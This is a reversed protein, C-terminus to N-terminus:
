LTVSRLWHDAWEALLEAAEAAVLDDDLAQQETLRQSELLALLFRQRDLEVTLQLRGLRERRRQERKRATAAARRHRVDPFLARRARPTM